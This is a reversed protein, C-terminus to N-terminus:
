NNVTRYGSIYPAVYCIPTEQGGRGCVRCHWIPVATATKVQNVVDDLAKHANQWDQLLRTAEESSCGYNQALEATLQKFEVADTNLNVLKRVGEKSNLGLKEV